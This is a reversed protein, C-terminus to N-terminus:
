LALASAFARVLVVRLAQRAAICVRHEVPCALQVRQVVSMNSLLVSPHPLALPPRDFIYLHLACRLCARSICRSELALLPVCAALMDLVDLM